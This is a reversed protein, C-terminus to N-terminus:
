CCKKCYGDSEYEMKEPSLWQNCNLCEEFMTAAMLIADNLTGDNSHRKVLADCWCDTEDKFTIHYEMRDEYPFPIYYIYIKHTKVFWNIAQQYTPATCSHRKSGDAHVSIRSNSFKKKNMTIIKPVLYGLNHISFCPEDFGIQKMASSAEYNVIDDEIPINKKEM